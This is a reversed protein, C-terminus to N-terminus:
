ELVDADEGEVTETEVVEANTELIDATSEKKESDIVVEESSVTESVVGAEDVDVFDTADVHAVAEDAYIKGKEYTVGDCFVNFIAKKM